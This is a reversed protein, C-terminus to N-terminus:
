GRREDIELATYIEPLEAESEFEVDLVPGMVQVVKGYQQGNGNSGDDTM